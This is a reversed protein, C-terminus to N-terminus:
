TSRCKNTGRAGASICEDELEAFTMPSGDPHLCGGLIEAAEEAIQQLRERKAVPLNMVWVEM